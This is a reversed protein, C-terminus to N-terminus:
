SSPEWEGGDDVADSYIVDDSEADEDEEDDKKRPKLLVFLGAIALLGGVIGIWADTGDDEIPKIREGDASFVDLVAVADAVGDGDTDITPEGSGPAAVAGTADVANATGSGPLLRGSADTVPTGGGSTVATGGSGGSSAGSGSTAGASTSGGGAGGSSSGGGKTTTTPSGGSGANGGGGTGGGGGGGGGTTTTPSSAALIRLTTEHTNSGHNEDCYLRYTGPQTVVLTAYQNKSLPEDRHIGLEDIHLDHKTGSTVTFKITDGATAVVESPSGANDDFFYNGVSVNVTAAWAPVLPTLLWGLLALAVAATAM